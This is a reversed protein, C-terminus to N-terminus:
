KKLILYTGLPLLTLVNVLIFVATSKKEVWRINWSNYIIAALLAMPFLFAVAFRANVHMSSLIPLQRLHPYFLGNALTFEISLWTFLLFLLLAGWKKSYAYTGMYRQPTRLFQRLGIILIGFVVPSMSMDFEWYGYVAGTAYIFYNNLLNPDLKAILFLPVLNMTGLLQMAIGFISQSLTTSYSDTVQRPFFRMFSYVASLKSASLLLAIVAGSTLIITLRRWSFMQPQFLYILPFIILGSMGFVIVLFYGAQHVLLAVTGGLLIGAIGVPLATDFCLLVIIALMPFAQFSLHGVAIREMMFGNASFFIAGLIGAQWSLKLVQQFFRYCALFALSIYIVSSIFVSQWPTFWLPLIGLISFQGTNPDPFIPVGGGISPTYWEITLGNNRYHITTDLMGPITGSYDHGVLPYNLNIFFYLVGNIVILNAIILLTVWKIKDTKM